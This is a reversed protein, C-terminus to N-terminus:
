CCRLLAERLERMRPPKGLLHDVKLPADNDSLLQQGWGTLLIISVDPAVARVGEIVKRGDVHPMGLDTIVVEFPEGRRHAALFTDIGAQGGEAATVDHGDADLTDRLSQLLVKDDDVVLLRMRRAKPPLVPVTVTTEFGKGGVPYRLRMTTGKGFSSDIEFQAGHRQAMGYVMPLGLGTGRDGKTTFFPELCRRRTEEDMGVGSDSVELLVTKGHAEDRATSTRISLVGGEPMADV